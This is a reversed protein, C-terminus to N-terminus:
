IHNCISSVAELGGGSGVCVNRIAFLIVRGSNLEGFQFHFANPLAEVSHQLSVTFGSIDPYLFTIKKHFSLVGREREGEVKDKGYMEWLQSTSAVLFPRTERINTTVRSFSLCFHHPGELGM